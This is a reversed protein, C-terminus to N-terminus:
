VDLYRVISHAAQRGHNVAHVVLSSGRVMDGGAFVKSNGTQFPYGTNADATVILGRENTDIAHSSFWDALSARFGFAVIICDAEITEETGPVPHPRRRGRADAEGLETTILRIGEVRDNGIIEM